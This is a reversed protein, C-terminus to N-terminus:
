YGLPLNDGLKLTSPISNLFEPILLFFFNKMDDQIVSIKKTTEDNEFRSHSYPHNRNHTLNVPNLQQAINISICAIQARIKKVM